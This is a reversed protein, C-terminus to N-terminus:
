STIPLEVSVKTGKTKESQLLLQAGIMAARQSMNTTGNGKKIAQPEFGQGNDSIHMSFVGGAKQLRIDVTSAQSYKAANNIAEKFIFFLNRRQEPNLSVMALEEDVSVQYSVGLPDLIEGAFEKMKSLLQETSDNSPSISWVIDSLKDLMESTHTNIKALVGDNGQSRLLEMQSIIQISSLTSGLDDHLDRAIANRLRELELQRRTHSVVRSRNYIVVSLSVFLILLALIFNQNARQRALSATTLEKETLLLNIETDRKNLQYQSEMQQLKVQTDYFGVSDTYTTVKSQAQYAQNIDGRQYHLHQLAKYASLLEKFDGKGEALSIARDLYANAESFRGLATYSKGIDTLLLAEYRYINVEELKSKAQLFYAIAEEHKQQYAANKGINLLNEGIVAQNGVLRNIEMAEFFTREAAAYDGTSMYVNALNGLLIGESRRDNLQRRYDLSELFYSKAKEYNNGAYAVSGLGNTAFALGTLNGTQEFIELAQYLAEARRNLDNIQAYVNSINIYSGAINDRSIQEPDLAAIKGYHFLADAVSGLRNFHIGLGTHYNYAYKHNDPNRLLYAEAYKFYYDASDPVGSQSFNGALRIAAMSSFYDQRPYAKLSMALAYAESSAKLNSRELTIGLEYLAKALVTDAKQSAVLNKLSDLPSQEQEAVLSYPLFFILFGLLMRPLMSGLSSSFIVYQERGM